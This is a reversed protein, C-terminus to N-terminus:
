CASIMLLGVVLAALVGGVIGWSVVKVYSGRRLVSAVVGALVGPLAFTTGVVFPIVDEGSGTPECASYSIVATIVVAAGVTGLILGALGALAYSRWGMWVAVLGYTAHLANDVPGFGMSTMLGLFSACLSILGFVKIWKLAQPASGQYGVWALMLGAAIDALDMLADRTLVDLTAGPIILGLGVVGYVALIIGGVRAYVLGMETSAPSSPPM